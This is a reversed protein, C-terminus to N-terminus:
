FAILATTEVCYWHPVSLCVSPRFQKLVTTIYWEIGVRSLLVLFELSRKLLYSPVLKQQSEAYWSIHEQIRTIHQSRRGALTCSADFVDRATSAVDLRRIVRVLVVHVPRTLPVDVWAMALASDHEDNVLQLHLAVRLTRQPHDMRETMHGHTMWWMLGLGLGDGPCFWAWWERTSSPPCGALYTTPPRSAILPPAPIKLRPDLTAPPRPSETGWYPGPAFPRLGPLPDAISYVMCGARAAASASVPCALLVRDSATLQVSTCKSRAPDPVSVSVTATVRQLTLSM